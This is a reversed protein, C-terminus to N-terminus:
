AYLDGIDNEPNTPDIHQDPDPEQWSAISLAELVGALVPKMRQPIPLQETAQALDLAWKSMVERDIVTIELANVWDELEDPTTTKLYNLIPEIRKSTPNEIIKIFSDLSETVMGLSKAIKSEFLSHDTKKIPNVPNLADDINRFLEDM